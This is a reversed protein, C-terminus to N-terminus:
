SFSSPDHTPPSGVVIMAVSARFEVGIDATAYAMSLVDLTGGKEVFSYRNRRVYRLPVYEVDVFVVGNAFSDAVVSCVGPAIARDVVEIEFSHIMGIYPQLGTPISGEIACGVVCVAWDRTSSLIGSSLVRDDSHMEPVARIWVRQFFDVPCVVGGLPVLLVCEVGVTV